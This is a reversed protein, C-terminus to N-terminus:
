TVCRRTVQQFQSLGLRQAGSAPSAQPTVGAVAAHRRALECAHVSPAGALAWSFVSIYALGHRWTPAQSRRVVDGRPRSFGHKRLYQYAAHDSVPRAMRASAEAAFARITPRPQMAMFELAFSLLEPPWRTSM